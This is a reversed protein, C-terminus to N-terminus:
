IGEFVVTLFSFVIFFALIRELDFEALLSSLVVLFSCLFGISFYKVSLSLKGM